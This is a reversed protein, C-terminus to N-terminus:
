TAACRGSASPRAATSPCTSRSYDAQARAREVYHGLIRWIRTDHERVHRALAAVPMHPALSCVMAEFLLKFGSQPRAWPVRVTRVKACSQCSVRPVRATLYTEHQFFDM